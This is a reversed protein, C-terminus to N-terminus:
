QLFFIVYLYFITVNLVTQLGFVIGKACNTLLIHYRKACNNRYAMLKFLKKAVYIMQKNELERSM